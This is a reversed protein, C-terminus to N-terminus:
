MIVSLRVHLEHSTAAGENITDFIREPEYFTQWRVRCTHYLSATEFFILM